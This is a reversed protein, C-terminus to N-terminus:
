KLYKIELLNWKKYDHKFLCVKDVLFSDEFTKTEYEEWAKKFNEPSLDRYAVTLHFQVETSYYHDPIKHHIENYLHQLKVKTPTDIFITHHKKNEFYGFDKLLVEFSKSKLNMELFNRVLTHEESENREFPNILTIHPLKKLSEVSNFRAAFDNSFVSVKKRLERPPVVAIFYLGM